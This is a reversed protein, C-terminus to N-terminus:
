EATSFAVKDKIDAWKFVFNDLLLQPGVKMLRGSPTTYQFIYVEYSKRAYLGGTRTFTVRHEYTGQEVADKTYFKLGNFTGEPALRIVTNTLPFYLDERDSKFLQGFTLECGSPFIEYKDVSAMTKDVLEWKVVRPKGRTKAKVPLRLDNTLSECETASLSGFNLNFLLFVALFWKM